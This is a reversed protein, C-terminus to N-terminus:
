WPKLDSVVYLALAPNPNARHSVTMGMQRLLDVIEDTVLRAQASMAPRYIEVEKRGDHMAHDIRQFVSHHRYKEVLEATRALINPVILGAPSEQHVPVSRLEDFRIERM